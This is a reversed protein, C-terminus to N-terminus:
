AEKSREHLHTVTFWTRPMKPNVGSSLMPLIAKGATCTRAALVPCPQIPLLPCKAQLLGGMPVQGARNDCSGACQQGNVRLTSACTAVEPRLCRWGEGVGEGVHKALALVHPSRWGASTAAHCSQCVPALLQVCLEAAKASSKLTSSSIRGQWDRGEIQRDHRLHRIGQAM